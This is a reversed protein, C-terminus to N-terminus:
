LIMSEYAFIRRKLSEVNRAAEDLRSTAPRQRPAVVPAGKLSDPLLTPDWPISGGRYVPGLQPTREALIAGCGRYSPVVPLPTPEPEPLEELAQMPTIEDSSYSTVTAAEAPDDPLNLQRCGPLMM